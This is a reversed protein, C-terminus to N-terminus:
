EKKKVKLLPTWNETKSAKDHIFGEINLYYGLM